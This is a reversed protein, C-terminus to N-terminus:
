GIKEEIFQFGSFSKDFSYWLFLVLLFNAISTFLSIYIASKNDQKQRSLLVFIAGLLPLVIISSLIPFNM